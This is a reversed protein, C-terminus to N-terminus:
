RTRITSAHFDKNRYDSTGDDIGNSIDAALILLELLGCGGALELL